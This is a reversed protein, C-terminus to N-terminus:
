DEKKRLTFAAAAGALVVGAVPVAPFAVGTKPATNKDAAKTAAAKTATAQATTTVAATTTQAAEAQRVLQATGGNGLSILDANQYYGGFSLAEGEYFLVTVSETGGIEETGIEVAGTVTKGSADTYTFSGDEGIELTGNDKASEQVSGSGDAEQYTWKGTIQSVTIAPAAETPAETPDQQDTVAADAPDTPEDAYASVAGAMTLSAALAAAAIISIKRTM